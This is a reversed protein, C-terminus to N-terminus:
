LGFVRTILPDTICRVPGNREPPWGHRERDLEILHTEVGLNRLQADFARSICADVVGDATGHAIV